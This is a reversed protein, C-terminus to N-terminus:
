APSRGPAPPGPDRPPDDPLRGRHGRGTRREEAGPPGPGAGDVLAPGAGRARDDDHHRPSARDRLPGLGPLGIVGVALVRRFLSTGGPSVLRRPGLRRSPLARGGPASCAVTGPRRPRSVHLRHWRDPLRPRRVRAHGRFANLTPRRSVGAAAGRHAQASAPQDVAYVARSASPCASSSGSRRASGAANASRPRRRRPARPRTRRPGRRATPRPTAPGGCRGPTPSGTVGDGAPPRDTM